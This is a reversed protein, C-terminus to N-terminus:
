LSTMTTSLGGPHISECKPDPKHCQQHLGKSIEWLDSLSNILEGKMIEGGQEDEWPRSRDPKKGGTEKHERPREEAM